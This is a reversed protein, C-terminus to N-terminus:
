LFFNSPQVLLNDLLLVLLDLRKFGLKLILLLLALQTFSSRCHLRLCCANLFLHLQQQLTHIPLGEFVPLYHLQSALQSM